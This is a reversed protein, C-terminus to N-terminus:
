QCLSVEMCTVIIEYGEFDTHLDRRSVNPMLTPQLAVGLPAQLSLEADENADSVQTFTFLEESGNWFIFRITNFCM